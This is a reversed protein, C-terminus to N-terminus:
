ALKWPRPGGLLDFMMHDNYRRLSRAWAPAPRAAASDTASATSSM